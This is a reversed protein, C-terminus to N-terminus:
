EEELGYLRRIFAANRAAKAGPRFSEVVADGLLQDDTRSAEAQEREKAERAERQERRAKERMTRDFSAAPDVPRESASM